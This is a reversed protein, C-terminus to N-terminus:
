NIELSFPNQFSFEIILLINMVHSGIKILIGLEIKKKKVIIKLTKKSTLSLGSIFFILRYTNKKNKDKEINL